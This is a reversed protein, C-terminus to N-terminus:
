TQYYIDGEQRCHYYQVIVGLIYIMNYTLYKNGKEITENESGM